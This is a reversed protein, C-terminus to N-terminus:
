ADEIRMQQVANNVTETFKPNHARSRQSKELFMRKSLEQRKETEIEVPSRLDITIVTAKGKRRRRVTM